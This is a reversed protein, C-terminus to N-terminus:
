GIVDGHQKVGAARGAHGFADEEGIVVELGVDVRGDFGGLELVLVREKPDDGQEVGEADRGHHERGDLQARLNDVDGAEAGDGGEVGDAFVLDGDEEADGAHEGGDGAQFVGLGFVEGVDVGDDGAALGEGGDEAFGEFLFEADGDEFAVAQGFGTGDDGEVGGLDVAGAGDAFHDGAGFGADGVIIAFCEGLALDALDPEFAGHDHLAIVVEGVFSGCHQCGIAVELGAVEAHDVGIAEEVDGAAFFFHDDDGTFFGEGAFDFVDEELVGGDGFGGDDTFFVGLAAFDDDGEDDGLFALGELGFVESVEGAGVAEGLPFDRAFDEDDFFEGAVGGAFDEFSFEGLAGVGGWSREGASM